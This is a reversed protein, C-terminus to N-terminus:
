LVKVTVTDQAPQIDDATDASSCSDDVQFFVTWTGAERPTWSGTTGQDIVDADGGSLQVAWLTILYDAEDVNSGAEGQLLVEEGVSVSTGDEPTVIAATPGPPCTGDPVEGGAGTDPPDACAALPLFVM